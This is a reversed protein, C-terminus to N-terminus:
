KKRRRAKAAKKKKVQLHGVSYAKLRSGRLGMARGEEASSKKPM